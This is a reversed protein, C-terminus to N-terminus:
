RVRIFNIGDDIPLIINEVRDDQYIKQNFADLAKGLNDNNPQGVKGKWLVNDALIISGSKMHPLILDFYDGYERKAADIFVLDWSKKLTNLTELAPGLHITIRESKGQAEFHDQAIKSHQEDFELTHIQAGVSLGEMLSLAGYGTFTGIELVLKPKILQVMMKLFQGLFPGTLMVERGVEEKTKNAIDNFYSPVSSSYQTCYKKVESSTIAPFDRHM